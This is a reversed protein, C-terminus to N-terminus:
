NARLLHNIIIDLLVRETDRETIYIIRFLVINRFIVFYYENKKWRATSNNKIMFMKFIKKINKKAKYIILVVLCIGKIKLNHKKKLITYFSRM